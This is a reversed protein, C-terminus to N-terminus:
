FPSIFGDQVLMEVIETRSMGETDGEEYWGNEGELLEHLEDEDMDTIDQPNYKKEGEDGKAKAQLQAVLDKRSVGDHDIGAATAAERLKPLTLAGYDIEAEAEPEEKRISTVTAEKKAATKRTRKPKEAEPEGEPEDPASEAEVTQGGNSSPDPYIWQARQQAGYEDSRETQLQVFVYKGSPSVGGIKTVVPDGNVKDDVTLTVEPKGAVAEYASRERSDGVENGSDITIPAWCTYGDYEAHEGDKNKADLVLTWNTYQTGAKPWTRLKVSVVRARYTADPPTAGDYVAVPQRSEAKRLDRKIIPM